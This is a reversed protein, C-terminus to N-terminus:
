HIKDNPINKVVNTILAHAQKRVRKSNEVAERLQLRIARDETGNCNEVDNAFPLPLIDAISDKTPNWPYGRVRQAKHNQLLVCYNYQNLRTIISNTLM